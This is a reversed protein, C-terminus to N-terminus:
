REMVDEYFRSLRKSSDLMSDNNFSFNEVSSHKADEACIMDQPLEKEKLRGKPREFNGSCLM